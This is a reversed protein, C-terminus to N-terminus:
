EPEVPPPLLLVASEAPPAMPIAKPILASM